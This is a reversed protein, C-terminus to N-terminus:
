YTNYLDNNGSRYDYYISAYNSTLLYHLDNESIFSDLSSEELKVGTVPNRGIFVGGDIIYKNLTM